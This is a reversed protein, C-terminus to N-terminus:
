ITKTELGKIVIDTNDVVLFWFNDQKTIKSIDYGEFYFNMVNGRNFNDVTRADFVQGLEGGFEIGFDDTLTGNIYLAECQEIFNFFELKTDNLTSM